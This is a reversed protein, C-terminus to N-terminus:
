IATQCFSEGGTSRKRLTELHEPKIVDIHVCHSSLYVSLHKRKLYKKPKNTQIINNVRQQKGTKVNLNLTEKELSM